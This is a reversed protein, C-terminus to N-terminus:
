RILRSMVRLKVPISRVSLPLEDKISLDRKRTPESVVRM